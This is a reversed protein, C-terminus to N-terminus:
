KIGFKQARKKMGERYREGFTPDPPELKKHENATVWLLNQVRNDTKDGNIHHVAMKNEANILFAKAVLRHMVRPYTIGNKYLGVKIYGSVKCARGLIIRGSTLHKLKGTNSVMYNEFDPIPAWLEM